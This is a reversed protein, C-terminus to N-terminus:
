RCYPRGTKPPRAWSQRRDLFRQVDAHMAGAKARAEAISTTRESVKHRRRTRDQATEVRPTLGRAQLAAERWPYVPPADICGQELDQATCFLRVHMHDDHPVEPQCTVAGFRERLANPARARKAESLLMTRLHEALFIRQLHEGSTELLAQMLRWTRVRDLQVPRDDHAVALDKFDTGRGEPDLPVGVAPLPQGREDLLFFLIDVDRGSQHSGHQAIPGGTQLSLDNVTLESGPMEGAVIRAADIIGAVLESTGFRAQQSRRPNFVFGTGALPLAVGNVLTGDGPAGLSTSSARPLAVGVGAEARAPEAPPAAPMAREGGPLESRPARISGQRGSGQAQATPAAGSRGGCAILLVLVAFARVRPRDCTIPLANVRPM